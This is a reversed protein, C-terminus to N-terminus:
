LQKQIIVTPAPAQNSQLSFSPMFRWNIDHFVTKPDDSIWKHHLWGDFAGYLATAILASAATQRQADNRGTMSYIMLSSQIIGFGFAKANHGNKYQGVGLPMFSLWYRAWNARFNDRALLAPMVDMIEYGWSGLFFIESARNPMHSHANQYTAPPSWQEKGRFFPSVYLSASDSVLYGVGGQYDGTEFHGIGFPLLGVWFGARKRLLNGEQNVNNPATNAQTETGAPSAEIKKSQLKIEKLLSLAEPPDSLADLEFKPNLQILRELLPKAEAFKGNAFHLRSMLLLLRQNQTSDLIATRESIKDCFSKAQLYDGDKFLTEALGLAISPDDPVEVKKSVPKAKPNAALAVGLFNLSLTTSIIISISRKMHAVM